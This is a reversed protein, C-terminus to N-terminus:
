VEATAKMVTTELIQYKKLKDVNKIISHYLLM